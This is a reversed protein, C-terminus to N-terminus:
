RSRGAMSEALALLFAPNGPLGRLAALAADSHERALRRATELKNGNTERLTQLITNREMVQMLSLNQTSAGGGSYDVFFNRLLAAANHYKQVDVRSRLKPAFEGSAFSTQIHTQAM